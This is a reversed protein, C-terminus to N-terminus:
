KLNLRLWQILRAGLVEAGNKIAQAILKKDLQSPPPVPATLYDAPLQQEDFIDVSPPSKAVSISFLQVDIRSIGSALMNDLVYRRKVDARAKRAKRLDQLRRIEANIARLHAEMVRAVMECDQAKEAIQDPFRTCEITDVTTEVDFDRVALLQAM